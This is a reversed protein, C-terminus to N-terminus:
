PNCDHSQSHHLVFYSQFTSSFGPNFGERPQPYNTQTQATAACLVFPKPANGPTEPHLFRSLTAPFLISSQLILQQVKYGASFTVPESGGAGNQQMYVSPFQPEPVEQSRAPPPVFAQGM